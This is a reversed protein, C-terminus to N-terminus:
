ILYMLPFVFIWIIDVIHWYLGVNEVPTYWVSSYRDKSAFYTLFGIAIIGIVIHIAHIGTMVYYIAFFIGARRNSFIAEKDPGISAEGGHETELGEMSLEGAVDAEGSAASPAAGGSGLVDGGVADSAAPGSTLDRDMEVGDRIGAGPDGDLDAPGAGTTAPSGPVATADGAPYNQDAGSLPAAQTNMTAGEAEVESHGEDAHEGEHTPAVFLPTGPM